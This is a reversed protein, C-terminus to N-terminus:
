LRGPIRHRADRDRRTGASASRVDACRLHMEDTMEYPVIVDAPDLGRNRLERAMQVSDLGGSASALCGSTSVGLVGLALLLPGRLFRRHPRRIRM